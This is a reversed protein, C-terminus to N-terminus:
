CIGSVRRKKHEKVPTTRTQRITDCAASFDQDTQDVFSRRITEEKLDLAFKLSVKICNALRKGFHSKRLLDFMRGIQRLRYTERFDMALFKTEDEYSISGFVTLDPPPVSRSRHIPNSLEM